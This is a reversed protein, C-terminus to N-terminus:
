IKWYWDRPQKWKTQSNFCNKESCVRQRQIPLAKPVVKKNSPSNSNAIPSSEEDEFSDRNLTGDSNQKNTKQFTQQWLPQSNTLWKLLRTMLLANWSLTPLYCLKMMAEKKKHSFKSGTTSKLTPAVFINSHTDNKPNVHSSGPHLFLSLLKLVIQILSRKSNSFTITEFIDKFIISSGRTRKLMSKQVNSKPYLNETISQSSPFLPLTGSPGAIAAITRKIEEAKSISSSKSFSDAPLLPISSNENLLELTRKRKSGLNLSSSMKQPSLSRTREARLAHRRKRGEIIEQELKKQREEDERDSIWHLNVPNIVISDPVFPFAFFM